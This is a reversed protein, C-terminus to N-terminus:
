HDGNNTVTVKKSFTGDPGSVTLTYTQSASPCPFEYPTTGPPFDDDSNGSPPLNWGMGGSLANDTSVGFGVQNVNTSKWTFKIYLHPTIPASTNCLVVKPSVTFLDIATTNSPPQPASPSESPSASPTESPTESPSARPSDSPSASDSPNAGPNSAPGGLGRSFLLALLVIIAILLIGGVISLVLVLTRSRKGKDDGTGSPPPQDFRVTPADDSM